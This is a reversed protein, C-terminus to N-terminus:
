DLLDDFNFDLGKKTETAMKEAREIIELWKDIHWTNFLKARELAKKSHENRAEKNEYFFRIAAELHTVSPVPRIFENDGRFVTYYEPEVLVGADGVIEPICTWNSSIIPCGSAMGEVLPLGFGEGVTPLALVDFFRYLNALRDDAMGFGPHHDPTIIIQKEPINLIPRLEKLNWGQDIVGTHLYLLTDTAGTNTIFNRYAFMLEPLRKRNQNRGVYGVVYNIERKVEESLWERLQQKVSEDPSFTEIDVGHYIQEVELDGDLEHLKDVAWKTYTIPIDIYHRIFNIWRPKLPTGDIPFYAIWPIRKGTTQRVKSLIPPIWDLAWIDNNTIFIDPTMGGLVEPLRNKGHRDTERMPFIKYPKNHPDGFSNIGLQVIDYKGTDYLAGLINDAVRGFGTTAAASDGFWFIRYMKNTGEDIKAM